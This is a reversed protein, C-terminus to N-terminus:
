AAERNAYLGFQGFFYLCPGLVDQRDVFCRTYSYPQVFDGNKRRGIGRGNYPECVQETVDAAHCFRCHEIGGRDIGIIIDKSDPQDFFVDM